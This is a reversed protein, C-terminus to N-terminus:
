LLDSQPREIKMLPRPAFCAVYVANLVARYSIPRFFNADLRAYRTLKEADVHDSKRDSHSITRLERVNAVIV